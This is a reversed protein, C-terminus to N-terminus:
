IHAGNLIGWSYSETAEIIALVISGVFSIAFVLLDTRVMKKYPKCRDSINKRAYTPANRRTVNDWWRLSFLIVGAFLTNTLIMVISARM